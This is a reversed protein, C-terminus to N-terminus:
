SCALVKSAQHTSVAVGSFKNQRQDFVHLRPGTAYHNHATLSHRFDEVARHWSDLPSQADEDSFAPYLPDLNAASMSQGDIVPNRPHSLAPINLM